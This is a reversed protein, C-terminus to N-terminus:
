NGALGVRVARHTFVASGALVAVGDGTVAVTDGAPGATLSRGPPLNRRRGARGNSNKKLNLLTLLCKTQITVGEGCAVNNRRKSSGHLWREM